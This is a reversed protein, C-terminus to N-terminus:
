KLASGFGSIPATQILCYLDECPTARSTAPTFDLISIRSSATRMSRLANRSRRSCNKFSFPNSIHVPCPFGGVRLRTRLGAEQQTANRPMDARFVILYKPVHGVGWGFFHWLNLVTMEAGSNRKILICAEPAPKKTIRRPKRSESFVRWLGCVHLLGVHLAVEEYAAGVIADIDRHGVLCVDYLEVLADRVFVVVEAFHQGYAVRENSDVSVFAQRRLLSEVSQDFIVLCPDDM